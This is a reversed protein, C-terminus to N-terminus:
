PNRKSNFNNLKFNLREEACVEGIDVDDDGCEYDAVLVDDHNCDILAFLYLNM